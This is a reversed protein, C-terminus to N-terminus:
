EARWCTTCTAGRTTLIAGDAATLVQDCRTLYAIGSPDAFSTHVDHVTSDDRNDLRVQRATRDLEDVQGSSV